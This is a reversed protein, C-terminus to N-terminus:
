APKGPMHTASTPVPVTPQLLSPASRQALWVALVMVAAFMLLPVIALGWAMRQRAKGAAEATNATPRGKAPPSFGQQRRQDLKNESKGWLRVLFLVALLGMMSAAMWLVIGGLLEDALPEMGWWRGVQDYATYLVTTKLTTVAGVPINAFIASVLMILRTSYPAGWPAPRPDFVCWFFLLGSLLLTVHMLYHLPASLLAANHYAPVQWAYLSGVYLLTCVVPHALFRFIGRVGGNGMVPVLVSRRLAAPMGAVLPAAPLALLLLMPAIGRLLLHQLQHVYFVHEAVLDLPTQLALFISALGIYFAWHRGRSIAVGKAQLQRTGRVYFVLSLLLVLLLEPSVPWQAWVSQGAQGDGHAQASSAVFVALLSLCRGAHAGLRVTGRSLVGPFKNM